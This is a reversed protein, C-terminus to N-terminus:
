FDIMTRRTDKDKRSYLYAYIGGEIAVAGQVYVYHATRAISRVNLSAYLGETLKFEQRIGLSVGLAFYKYWTQPKDTVEELIIQYSEGTDEDLVDQYTFKRYDAVFDMGLFFGPVLLLRYNDRYYLPIHFDFDFTLNKIDKDSSMYNLGLGIRSKHIKSYHIITSLGIDYGVRAASKAGYNSSYPSSFYGVGAYGGLQVLSPNQAQVFLPFFIFLLLKAIKM